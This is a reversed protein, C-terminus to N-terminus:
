NELANYKYFVLTPLLFGSVELVQIVHIFFEFLSRRKFNECRFPLSIKNLITQTWHAKNRNALMTRPCDGSVGLSRKFYKFLKVPPAPRNLEQFYDNNKEVGNENNSAM